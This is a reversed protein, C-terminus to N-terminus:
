FTSLYGTMKLYIKIVAKIKRGYIFFSLFLMFGEHESITKATSVFAICTSDLM